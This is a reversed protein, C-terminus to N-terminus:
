FFTFSPKLPFVTIEPRWLLYTKEDDEFFNVNLKYRVVVKHGDPRKFVVTGSDIIVDCVEIERTLMDNIASKRTAVDDRPLEKEAAIKSQLNEDVKKDCEINVRQELFYVEDSKDAQIKVTNNCLVSFNGIIPFLDEYAPLSLIFNKDPKYISMWKKESEPTKLTFESGPMIVNFKGLKKFEIEAQEKKEAVMENQLTTSTKKVGLGLTHHFTFTADGDETKLTLKGNDLLGNFKGIKIPIPKGKPFPEQINANLEESIILNRTNDNILTINDERTNIKIEGDDFLVSSTIIKSPIISYKLTENNAGTTMAIDECFEPDTKFKNTYYIAINVVIITLPITSYWLTKKTVASWYGASEKQAPTIPNKTNHSFGNRAHCMSQLYKTTNQKTINNTTRVLRLGIIKAIGSM